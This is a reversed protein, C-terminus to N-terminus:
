QNFGNPNFILVKNLSTIIKKDSIKYTNGADTIKYWSNNKTNYQYSGFMINGYENSFTVDIFNIKYINM